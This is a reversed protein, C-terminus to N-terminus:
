SDRLWENLRGDLQPGSLNNTEHEIERATKISKLSATQVAAKQDSRGKGYVVALLGLITIATAAFATLRSTVWGTISAIM